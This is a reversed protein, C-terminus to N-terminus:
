FLLYLIYFFLIYQSFNHLFLLFYPLDIFEGVGMQGGIDGVLTQLPLREYYQTYSIQSSQKEERLYFLVIIFVTFSNETSEHDFNYVTVLSLRM